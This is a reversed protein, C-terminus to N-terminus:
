FASSAVVQVRLKGRLTRSMFTETFVIIKNVIIIATLLTKVLHVIRTVTKPILNTQFDDEDNIGRSELTWLCDSSVLTM